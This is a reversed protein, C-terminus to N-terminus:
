GSFGMQGYLWKTFDIREKRALSEPDATKLAETTKAAIQEASYGPTQKVLQETKGTVPNKVLSTSTVIGENIMDNISQNLTQYWSSKKDQDTINRGLVDMALTDINKAVTDPATQYVQRTPYNPKTTSTSIKLAAAGRLLDEISVKKANSDATNMMNDATKSLWAGLLGPDNYTKGTAQKVANRIKAYLKPNSTVLSTIYKAYGAPPLYKDTGFGLGIGTSSDTNQQNTTGGWNITPKTNGLVPTFSPSPTPTPTPKTM